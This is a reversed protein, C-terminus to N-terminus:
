RKRLGKRELQALVGTGSVKTKAYCDKSEHGVRNCKACIVRKRGRKQDSHYQCYEGKKSVVQRCPNGNKRTGSCRIAKNQKAKKRPEKKKMPGHARPGQAKANAKPRPGRAANVMSWQGAWSLSGVNPVQKYSKIKTSRNLNTLNM